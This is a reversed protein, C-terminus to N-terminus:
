RRIRVSYNRHHWSLNQEKWNTEDSNLKNINNDRDKRWSGIGRNWNYSNSIPKNYKIEIDKDMVKPRLFISGVIVQQKLIHVIRVKIRLHLNICTHVQNQNTQNVQNQLNQRTILSSKTEWNVVLHIRVRTSTHVTM